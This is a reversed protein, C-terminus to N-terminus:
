KRKIRVVNKNKKKQQSHTNIKRKYITIYGNPVYNRQVNQTHLINRGRNNKEETKELSFLSLTKHSQTRSGALSTSTIKVFTKIRIIIIIVFFKQGITRRMRGNVVHMKYCFNRGNSKSISSTM